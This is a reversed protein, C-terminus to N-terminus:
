KIHLCSESFHENGSKLSVIYLGDPWGENTVIFSHFGSLLSGSFCDDVTRGALDFIAIEVIKDELLNFSIEIVSKSPNPSVVLHSASQYDEVEIGTGSAVDFLLRMVQIIPGDAAYQAAIVVTTNEAPCYFAAAKGLSPTIGPINGYHGWIIRGHFDQINRLGLCWEDNLAPFQIKMMTDVTAEQLIREGLVEGGQLLAIFPMAMELPTSKILATAYWPTSAYGYPAFFDGGSYAYPPATNLTDVSTILYSTREMGLPDFIFERCHLDFSDSFASQEEVIAAIVGHAQRTHYSFVTGPAWPHFNLTDDYFIGGPMYLEQCYEVNSYTSDGFVLEEDFIESNRKLSSTHTMIMRPTIPISPYFPNRITYPLYDGIDADLDVVGQEWLQMFSISTITKSVSWFYFLTSDNVLSDSYSFNKVGFSGSWVLSDGYFVSASLGPINYNEMLVEISDDPFGAQAFVASVIM